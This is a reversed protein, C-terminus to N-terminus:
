AIVALFAAVIVGTAGRRGGTWARMRSTVPNIALSILLILLLSLLIPSLLSFTQIFAFLAAAVILAAYVSHPKVESKSVLVTRPGSPSPPETKVTPVSRL